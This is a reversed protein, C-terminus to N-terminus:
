STSAVATRRKGAFTLAAFLVIEVVLQVIRIAIAAALVDATPAVPRLLGVLIAERVGLGSPVPLALFGATFAVVFASAVMVTSAQGARVLLLAYATGFCSAAVVGILTALTMARQDPVHTASPLRSMRRRLARLLAAVWTRRGVVVAIAVGGIALAWRVSAGLHPDTVALVVAALGGPAVTTVLAHVPLAVAIRGRAVGARRSAEYQAAMQVVGGPVYKGLQGVIFARALAVTPTQATSRVLAVWAIAGCALTTAVLAGAAACASAGPWRVGRADGAARALALVVGVGMALAVAIRAWRRWSM